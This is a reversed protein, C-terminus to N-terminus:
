VTARPVEIPFVDEVELGEHWEAPITGFPLTSGDIATEGYLYKEGPTTKKAVVDLGADSQTISDRIGVAVHDCRGTSGGPTKVFLLATEFGLHALLSACLLSTCECDGVGDHITEIAFRGYEQFPGGPFSLTTDKDFGYRIATQVFALVQNAFAFKPINHKQRISFIQRCLRLLEDKGMNEAPARDLLVVAQPNRQYLYGKSDANVQRLRTLLDDSIVIGIPYEAGAAAFQYIPNAGQDPPIIEEEARKPKDAGSDDDKAREKLWDPLEIKWRRSFQTAKQLRLVIAIAGCESFLALLAVAFPQRVRLLGCVSLGAAFLLIRMDWRRTSGKERSFVVWARVANHELAWGPILLGFLLFVTPVAIPVILKLVWSLDPHLVVVALWAASIPFTAVLAILLVEMRTLPEGDNLHGSVRYGWRQNISDTM